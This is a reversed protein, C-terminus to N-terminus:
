RRWRSEGEDNSYHSRCAMGVCKPHTPSAFPERRRSVRGRGLIRGLLRRSRRAPDGVLPRRTGRIIDDIDLWATQPDTKKSLARIRQIVASARHGDRIILEVAARTEALDPVARALWRLCAYGNNVVATLPQSVTLHGWVLRGDKGYYRKEIHYNEREGSIVETFV